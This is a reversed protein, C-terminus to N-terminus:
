IEGQKGTLVHSFPFIKSPYLADSHSRVHVILTNINHIKATEVISQFKEEFAEKTNESKSVDLDIYSVWMGQLFNQSKIHKNENNEPRSLIQNTPITNETNSPNKIQIYKAVM